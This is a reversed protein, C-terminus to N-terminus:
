FGAQSYPVSKKLCEEFYKITQEKPEQYQYGLKWKKNLESLREAYIRHRKVLREAGGIHKYHFLTLVKDSYRVDGEPKCKHCGYEYNIEKIRDPRFIVQKSYNDDPIGTDIESWNERPVHNSFVNWGRTKFITADTLPPQELIEDADVVIVWDAESSKWCNNKVKLYEKDNLEGQIGFLRIDCGMSLAIDRTQDTSFNDYIVIRNCFQQYHKITFAITEAENWAIIHAEVNM